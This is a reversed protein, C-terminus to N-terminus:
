AYPASSYTSRSSNRIHRARPIVTSVGATLGYSREKWLSQPRRIPRASRAAGITPRCPNAFRHAEVGVQVHVRFIGARGAAVEIELVEGPPRRALADADDAGAVEAMRGPRGLQLLLEDRGLGPRNRRRAPCRAPRRRSAQRRGAARRHAEHELHLDRGDVLLAVLGPFDMVQDVRRIERGGVADRRPEARMPLM